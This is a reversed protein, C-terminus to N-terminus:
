YAGPPLSTLGPQLMTYRYAADMGAVMDRLERRAELLGLAAHRRGNPNDRSLSVELATRRIGYAKGSISELRLSWFVHWGEHHKGYTFRPSPM